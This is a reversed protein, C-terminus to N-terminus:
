SYTRTIIDSFLRFLIYLIYIYNDFWHPYRVQKRVSKPVNRLVEDATLEDKEEMQRQEQQQPREADLQGDGDRLQTVFGTRSPLTKSWQRKEAPVRAIELHKVSGARATLNRQQLM